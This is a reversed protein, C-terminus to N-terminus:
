HYKGPGPNQSIDWLGRHGFRATQSFIRTGDGKNKSVIYKGFGNLNDKEPYDMPGPTFKITAFRDGNPNIKALKADNFKSIKFRGTKPNM